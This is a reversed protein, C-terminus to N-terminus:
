LSFIVKMKTEKLDKLQQQAVVDIKNDKIDIIHRHRHRQKQVNGVLTTVIFSYSRPLYSTHPTYM